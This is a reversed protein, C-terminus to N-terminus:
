LFINPHEGESKMVFSLLLIIAAFSFFLWHLILESRVYAPNLDFDSEGGVSQNTITPDTSL